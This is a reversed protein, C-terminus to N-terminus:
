AKPKSSGAIALCIAALILPMWWFDKLESLHSSKGGIVYMAISAIVALVGITGFVAKKNM